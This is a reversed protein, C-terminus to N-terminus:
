QERFSLVAYPVNNLANQVLCANQHLFISGGLNALSTSGFIGTAIITGHVNATVSPNPNATFNVNGSVLILGFYNFGNTIDITLNGNVVLVGYGTPTAGGVVPTGLTLDGSSLYTVPAGNTPMPPVIQGSANYTLPSPATGLVPHGGSYVKPSGSGTVGTGATDTPISSPSLATILAPINYPFAANEVYGSPAGTVNGAGPVTVTKGSKVGYTSPMSCAPDTYGSVNLADGMFVDLKTHIAADVQIPAQPAVVYQLMKRAGNPLVALSTVELAQAGSSATNLNGGDFYLPTTSDLPLAHNGVNVGISKETIANLRVWKYLPGPNAAGSFMSPTTQTAPPTFATGAFETPYITDPYKTLINGAAEGPAPNLVYRAQGLALTTGPPAAFAGFYNPNSPLLRGRGEEVGAMSAYFASSSNRYNGALTTESGSAAVLALGVASILLLAFLAILLAVGNESRKRRITKPYKM